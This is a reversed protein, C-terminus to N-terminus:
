GEAAAARAPSPRVDAESGEAGSVLGYRTRMHRRAEAADTFGERGHMMRTNDIMMVDGPGWEISARHREVTRLLRSLLDRYRSIRRGNLRGYRRMYGSFLSTSLVDQGSFRSRTLIPTEWEVYISDAQAGPGCVFAALRFLPDGRDLATLDKRTATGIAWSTCRLISRTALARLGGVVIRFEGTARPLERPSDVQLVQTWAERPVPIRFRLRSAALTRLDAPDLARAIAQGDYVTTAGGVPAQRVGHMFVVDPRFPRPLFAVEAHPPLAASGSDVTGITVDAEPPKRLQTSNAHLVFREAFRRTFADFVAADIPFGRFLLVGHERFAALVEERPLDLLSETAAPQIVLGAAEGGVTRLQHARV